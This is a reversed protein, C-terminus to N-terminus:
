RKKSVIQIIESKPILFVNFLGGVFLASTTAIVPSTTLYTFFEWYKWDFITGFEVATAILISSIIYIPFIITFRRASEVWDGSETAERYWDLYIFFAGSLLLFILNIWWFPPVITITWYVTFLTIATGCFIQSIYYFTYRPADSISRDFMEPQELFQCTNESPDYNGGFIDECISKMSVKRSTYKDKM